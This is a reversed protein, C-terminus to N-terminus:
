LDDIKVKEASQHKSTGALLLGVLLTPRNQLRDFLMALLDGSPRFLAGLVMRMSPVQDRGLNRPQVSPVGIRHSQVLACDEARSFIKEHLVFRNGGFERRLEIPRAAG